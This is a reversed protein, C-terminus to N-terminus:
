RPRVGVAGDRESDAVSERQRRGEVLLDRLALRLLPFRFGYGTELTRVPM